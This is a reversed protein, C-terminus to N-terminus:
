QPIHPSGKKIRNEALNMKQRISLPSPCHYLKVFKPLRYHYVIREVWQRAYQLKESESLCTNVQNLLSLHGRTVTKENNIEIVQWKGTFDFVKITASNPKIHAFIEAEGQEPFLDNNEILSLRYPDFEICDRAEPYVEFVKEFADDLDEFYNNKNEESFNKGFSQYLAEQPNYLFQGEPIRHLADAVSLYLDLSLNSKKIKKLQEFDFPIPHEIISQYVVDNLKLYAEGDKAAEWDVFEDFLNIYPIDTGPPAHKFLGMRSFRVEQGHINVVTTNFHIPEVLRVRTNALASIHAKVEPRRNEPKAEVSMDDISPDRKVTFGIKRLFDSINNGLPIKPNPPIKAPPEWAQGTYGIEQNVYDQVYSLIKRSTLGHPGIAFTGTEKSKRDKINVKNNDIGAMMDFAPYHYQTVTGAKRSPEKKVTEGGLETKWSPVLSQQVLTVLNATEARSSVPSLLPTALTEIKSWANAYDEETWFDMYNAKRHQILEAVVAYLLTEYERTREPLGEIVVFDINGSHVFQIHCLRTAKDIYRYKDDLSPIYNPYFYDDMVLFGTRVM